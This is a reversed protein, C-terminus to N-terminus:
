RRGEDAIKFVFSLGGPNALTGKKTDNPPLCFRADHFRPIKRYPSRSIPFEDWSLKGRAAMRTDTLSM